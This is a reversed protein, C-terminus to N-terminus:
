AVVQLADRVAVVAPCRMNLERNVALSRYHDIGLDREAQRDERVAAGTYLIKDVAKQGAVRDCIYRLVKRHRHFLDLVDNADRGAASRLVFRRTTAPYDVAIASGSSNKMSRLRPRSTTGAASRACPKTTWVM